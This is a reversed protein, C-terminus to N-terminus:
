DLGVKSIRTMLSNNYTRPSNIINRNAEMITLFHMKLKVCYM